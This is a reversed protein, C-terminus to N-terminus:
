PRVSTPGPPGIGGFTETATRTRRREVRKGPKRQARALSAGAVAAELQRGVDTGLVVAEISAGGAVDPGGARRRGDGGQRQRREEAAAVDLSV